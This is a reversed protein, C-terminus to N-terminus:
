KWHFLSNQNQDLWSVSINWFLKFLHFVSCFGLWSRSVFLSTWPLRRQRLRYHSVYVEYSCFLWRIEHFFDFKRVFKTVRWGLKLVIKFPVCYTSMLSFTTIKRSAKKKWWGLRKEAECLNWNVIDWSQLKERMERSSYNLLFSTLFGAM